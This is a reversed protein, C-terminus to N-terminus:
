GRRVQEEHNDWEVPIPSALSIAHESVQCRYAIVAVGAALAQRLAHTFEPDAKANPGFARADPRQVVFLVAAQDGQAVERVLAALHRRGRETPADPFRAIGGEVLTVSKTEVWCRGAPGTLLFDIRSDGSSVESRLRTYDSLHSLARAGFAEALLHNPLRADVSVWVSAYRVLKLDFPTKRRPNPMPALRLERGPTLLEGLRGSNPLHALVPQGNAEAVVLFRNERRVFRAATLPRPM